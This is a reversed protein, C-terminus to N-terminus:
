MINNGQSMRDNDRRGKEKKERKRKKEEKKGKPSCNSEFEEGGLGCNPISGKVGQEGLLYQSEFGPQNGM